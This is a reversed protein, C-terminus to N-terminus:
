IFKLVMMKFNSSNKKIKFKTTTTSPPSIVQIRLYNHECRISRFILSMHLDVMDGSAFTFADVLPSHGEKYLWGLIGWRAARKANYKKEIKSTGTGLSIVVYNEYQLAKSALHEEPGGPFVAGTPKMALLAKLLELCNFM